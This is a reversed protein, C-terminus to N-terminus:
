SVSFLDMIKEKYRSGKETRASGGKMNETHLIM